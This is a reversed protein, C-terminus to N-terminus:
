FVEAAFRYIEAFKDKYSNKPLGAKLCTQELFETVNWGHEAAVQPLLLGSHYDLRIMLGDRGVQIERTDHVRELPSLVSIEFALREFEDPSLPVFRPDEFAAAVAMEAVVKNLPDRALTQGICGRLNGDLTITVFAGKRITLRENEPVAYTEGTLRAAIADRAIQKLAAKDDDTLGKAREPRAMAAGETERAKAARPPEV